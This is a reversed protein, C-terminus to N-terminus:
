TSAGVRRRPAGAAVIPGKGPKLPRHTPLKERWRLWGARALHVVLHLGDVDIDLFKGHRRVDTIPLGGLSTVPPDYTKLAAIGAVDVRPWWVDSWRARAPIRRAGRGRAAGADPWEACRRGRRAARVSSTQGQLTCGVTGYTVIAHTTSSGRAPGAACAAAWRDDLAAHADADGAPPEGALDGLVTAEADDAPDGGVQQEGAPQLVAVGAAVDARGHGLVGVLLEDGGRELAVVPRLSALGTCGYRGM